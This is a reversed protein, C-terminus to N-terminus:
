SLSLVVRQVRDGVILQQGGGNATGVEDQVGTDPVSKEELVAVDNTGRTSM